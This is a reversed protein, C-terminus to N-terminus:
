APNAYPSDYPDYDHRPLHLTGGVLVPVKAAKLADAVKWAESGGSIVGHLKLEKILALADLIEVQQNASFIVPKKARAYPVLAELRLDPAPPNEGRKQAKNVVADYALARRFLEKIKDLREQRRERAENAATAGSPGQGPRDLGIGPRRSEPN